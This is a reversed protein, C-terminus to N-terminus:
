LFLDILAEDTLDGPDAVAVLQGLYAVEDLESAPDFAYFDYEISTEQSVPQSAVGNKDRPFFAIFATAAVAAIAASLWRKNLFTLLGKGTSPPTDNILRVERVVDRSFFPGPKPGSAGKLLTWVPDDKEENEM